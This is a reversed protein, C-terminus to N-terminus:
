LSDTQCSVHSHELCTQAYMIVLKPSEQCSNTDDLHEIAVHPRINIPGRTLIALALATDASHSGYARHTIRRM